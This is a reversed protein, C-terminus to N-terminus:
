RPNIGYAGARDQLCKVHIGNQVEWEYNASEKNITKGCDVCYDVHNALVSKQWEAYSGEIDQPDLPKKPDKHQHFDGWMGHKIGAM